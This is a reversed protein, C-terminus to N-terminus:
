STTGVVKTLTDKNSPQPSGLRIRRATEVTHTVVVTGCDGASGVFRGATRNIPLRILIQWCFTVTAGRKFIGLGTIPIKRSLRIEQVSAELHVKRCIGRM